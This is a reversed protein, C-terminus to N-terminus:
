LPLSETVPRLAVDTTEVGCRHLHDKYWSLAAQTRDIIASSGWIVSLTRTTTDSTKTRQSDKVPGACPGEEDHLSILGSVDIVQGSPNFAYCTQPACRKLQLSGVTLDLDVVSIPLGTHLSVVNCADVALNIGREPGFWGKEIAKILYESAPKSRGTPKFGDHRLLERIQQKISDSTSLPATIGSSFWQLLSPPSPLDSLKAPFTSVFCAVDLNPHPYLDIIM